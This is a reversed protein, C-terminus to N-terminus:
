FASKVRCMSMRQPIMWMSVFAIDPGLGGVTRLESGVVGDGLVDSFQHCMIMFMGVAAQGVTRWNFPSRIANSVLM